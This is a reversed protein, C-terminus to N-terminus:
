IGLVLPQQVSSYTLHLRNLRYIRQVLLFPKTCLCSFPMWVVILFRRSDVPPLVGGKLHFIYYFVSLPDWLTSCYPGYLLNFYYALISLSHWRHLLWDATLHPARGHDQQPELCSIHEARTLPVQSRPWQQEHSGYSFPKIGLFGPKPMLVCSSFTTLSLLCRRLRFALVSRGDTPCGRPVAPVFDQRTSIGNQSMRRPPVLYTHLGCSM